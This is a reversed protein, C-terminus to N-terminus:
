APLDTKKLKRYHYRHVLISPLMGIFLPKLLYVYYLTPIKIYRLARFKVIVEKWRQGIKKRSYDSKDWHINYLVKPLTVIKYGRGVLRLWLDYDEVRLAKEDYCGTEIITDKRMMVSAHIVSSGKVWDTMVPMVPPKNEGWSEGNKGFLAAYTGLVAVDPNEDLFAVQEEFRSDISVDDADQRALYEGKALRICSNLATALGKNTEHRVLVFREDGNTVRKLVDWTGDTSGDDCIICEWNDYTQSRISNIANIIGDKGNYVGMIVSIKPAM